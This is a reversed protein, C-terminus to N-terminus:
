LVVPPGHGPLLISYGLGRLLALSKEMANEDGGPLDTRGFGDAFLTDGSILINGKHLCISGATHGPTHIVAWGHFEKGLPQPTSGSLKEGFMGSATYEPDAKALYPLDAGHIYVPCSFYKNGGVHDFHCHTNVIADIPHGALEKKLYDINEGTGTDVLFTVDSVVLISNSDYGRGPVFYVSDTIKDM